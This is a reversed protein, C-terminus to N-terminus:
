GSSLPGRAGMVSQVPPVPKGTAAPLGPPTKTLGERLLAPPDSRRSVRTGGLVFPIYVLGLPNGTRLLEVRAHRIAQGVTMGDSLFAALFTTAFVSAMPEFVTIETAIVGAAGIDKIFGSVLEFRSQPSIAGTRCGNLFVLPREHELAGLKRRLTFLEAATIKKETAPGLRVFAAQKPTMGGHCYLYVVQDDRRQLMEFFGERTETLDLHHFRNRLEKEHDDRLLLDTAIGVGLEPRGDCQLTGITELEDSVPWGLEHRFGWFGAPCVVQLDDYNPCEGMLCRSDERPAGSGLWGAFAECTEIGTEAGTEIPHDYLVAAPLFQKPDAALEIRQPPRIRESLRIPDRDGALREALQAYQRYGITALQVLHRQRMTMSPPTDYNTPIGKEWEEPTNWAVERLTARCADIIGQLEQESLTVDAKREGDAAFFRVQHTTENGNISISLDASPLRELGAPDLQRSLAYELESHLAPGDLPNEDGIHAVVLRSQVLIGDRYLNCRLRAPGSKAPSRVPFAMCGDLNLPARVVSARQEGLELVGTDLAERVELEGPFGSVVVSLRAGVEVGEVDVPTVEISGAVPAGIELWFWYDTSPELARWLSLKGYDEALFGTSVVRPLRPEGERRLESTPSPPRILGDFVRKISPPQLRDVEESVPGLLRTRGPRARRRRRRTPAKVFRLGEESLQRRLAAAMDPAESSLERLRRLDDIVSLYKCAREPTFAVIVETLAERLESDGRPRAVGLTAAFGDVGAADIVASPVYASARPAPRRRVDAQWAAFIDRDEDYGLLLPPTHGEWRLPGPDARHMVVRLEPRSRRSPDGHATLRWAYVCLEREGVRLLAPLSGGYTVTRGGAALAQVFRELPRM